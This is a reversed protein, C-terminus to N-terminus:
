GRRQYGGSMNPGFGPKKFGAGGPPHFGGMGGGFSPNYGGYMNMDPMYGGQYGMRNGMQGYPMMGGPGVGMMGPSNMMMNQNQYHQGPGSMPSISSIQGSQTNSSQVGSHGGSKNSPHEPLQPRKPDFVYNNFYEVDKKVEIIKEMHKYFLHKRIFEPGKFRKGSLPCLWRDPALEQTNVKIFKEIEEKIDKIGLKRALESEIKDKYESYPKMKSEFQQIYTNIDDNNIKLSASAANVPLAPRVFMIGCRNPMLDEQQYEISNYYDVSHVMRLYLVLRDLVRNYNKDIEIDFSNPKSPTKNANENVNDGLLEEEEANIEDVLYDTINELLPNQGNFKHSIFLPANPKLKGFAEEELKATDSESTTTASTNEESKKNNEDENQNIKDQNTEENASADESSVSSDQWLNWKKDMNQVIKMAIKINNKVVTKHHSVLNTIPRIRSTLERNVIAGPNCEKLKINQLSWCIKKVDINSDFTIWGRRFFGREPAPDSLAVRKFGEYSKCLNELDQKTVSPALNRMFISSTKHLQRINNSQSKSSEKRNSSKKAENDSDDTYAGSEDSGSDGDGGDASSKKRKKSDGNQKSEGDEDENKNNSDEKSQDEKSQTEIGDLLKKIDEDSGGELKIVFADLFRILDKQKEYECGVDNLWGANMLEMFAECRNLVFQNQERRRKYNEDPHYRSKFWEEEKHELFFNNIQTKKFDVKYENYRRIAEEDSISDDQQQLFQKFSFFPPQTPYEPELQSKQFESQQQHGGGMRSSHYGSSNGGSNYVQDMDWDKKNRKHPPPSSDFNGGPSNNHHSYKRPYDSSQQQM